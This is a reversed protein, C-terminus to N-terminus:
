RVTPSLSLHLLARVVWWGGSDRPPPSSCFLNTDPLRDNGQYYTSIDLVLYLYLRDVM